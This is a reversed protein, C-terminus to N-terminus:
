GMMKERIREAERDIASTDAKKGSLVCTFEAGIAFLEKQLARSHAVTCLVTLPASKGRPVNLVFQTGLEMSELYLLGVGRASVDRLVVPIAPRNPSSNNSSDHMVISARAQIGRRPARRNEENEKQVGTAGLSDLVAALHETSLKM